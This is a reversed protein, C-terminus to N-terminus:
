NIFYIFLTQSMGMGSIRFLRYFEDLDSSPLGMTQSVYNYYRPSNDSSIIYDAQGHYTVKNVTLITDVRKLARFKCVKGGRDKFASLDGEWTQINFPNQDIAAKADHITFTSANWKPNGTLIKTAARNISCLNM